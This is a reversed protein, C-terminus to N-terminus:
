GSGAAQERKSIWWGENSLLEVLGDVEGSLLKSLGLGTSDSLLDRITNAYTGQEAAGQM